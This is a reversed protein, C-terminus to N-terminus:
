IIKVQFSSNYIHEIEQLQNFVIFYIKRNWSIFNLMKRKLFDQGFLREEKKLKAIRKM